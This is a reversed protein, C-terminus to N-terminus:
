RKLTSNATSSAARPIEDSPSFASSSREIARSCRSVFAATRSDNMRTVRDSDDSPSYRRTISAITLEYLTPRQANLTSRIHDVSWAGRVLEVCCGLGRPGKPHTDRLHIAQRSLRLRAGYREAAAGRGRHLGVHVIRPVDPESHPATFGARPRGNGAHRSGH